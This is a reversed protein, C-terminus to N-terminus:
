YSLHIWYKTIESKIKNGKKSIHKKVIDKNFSYEYAYATFIKCRM